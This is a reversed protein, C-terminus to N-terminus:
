KSEKNPRNRSQISHVLLMALPHCACLAAMINFNHDM